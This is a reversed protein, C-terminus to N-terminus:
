RNLINFYSKKKNSFHMPTTNIIPSLHFFRRRLFYDFAFVTYCLFQRRELLLFFSLHKFPLCCLLATIAILAHFAYM